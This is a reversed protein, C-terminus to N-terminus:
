FVQIDTAGAARLIGKAEARKAENPARVSLM